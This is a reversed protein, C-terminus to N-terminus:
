NRTKNVSFRNTIKASSLTVGLMSFYELFSKEIAKLSLSQNFVGAETAEIIIKLNCYSSCSNFKLHQEQLM